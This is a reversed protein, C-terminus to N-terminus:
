NPNKVKLILKPPAPAKKSKTNLVLSKETLWLAQILYREIADEPDTTNPDVQFQPQTDFDFDYLHASIEKM